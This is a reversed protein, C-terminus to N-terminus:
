IDKDRGAGEGERRFVSWRSLTGADWTKLTGYLCPSWTNNLRPYQLTCHVTKVLVVPRPYSVGTGLCRPCITARGPPGPTPPGKRAERAEGEPEKRRTRKGEPKRTEGCSSVTELSGRRSWKNCGRSLRLINHPSPEWKRDCKRVAHGDAAELHREGTQTHTNEKYCASKTTAYMSFPFAGGQTWRPNNYSKPISYLTTLLKSGPTSQRVTM